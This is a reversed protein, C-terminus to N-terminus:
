LLTVFKFLLLYKTNRYILFVKSNIISSFNFKNNAITTYIFKAFKNSCMFIKIM